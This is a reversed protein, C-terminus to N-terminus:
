CTLDTQNELANKLQQIWELVNLKKDSRCGRHLRKYSILAHTANFCSVFDYSVCLQPALNKALFVDSIFLLLLVMGSIVTYKVGSVDWLNEMDCCIMDDWICYWIDISRHPVFDSTTPSSRRDNMNGDMMWDSLEYLKFLLVLDDTM